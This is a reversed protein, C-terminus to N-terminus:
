SSSTFVVEGNRTAVLRVKLPGATFTDREAVAQITDIL